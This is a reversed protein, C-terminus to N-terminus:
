TGPTANESLSIVAANSSAPLSIEFSSSPLAIIPWGKLMAERALGFGTTQSQARRGWRRGLLTNTARSSRTDLTRAGATWGTPRGPPTPCTRRGRRDGGVQAGATWGTPRGPPTPCTRRGRRDGGVQCRARCSRGDERCLQPHLARPGGGDARPRGPDRPEVDAGHALPEPEVGARQPRATRTERDGPRVRARHGLQALSAFM